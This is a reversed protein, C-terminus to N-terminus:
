AVQLHLQRSCGSHGVFDLQSNNGVMGGGRQQWFTLAAVSLIGGNSMKQLMQFGLYLRHFLRKHGLLLQVFDGDPVGGGEVEVVLGAYPGVGAPDVGGKGPVAAELLIKGDLGGGGGPQQVDEPLLAAARVAGAEGLQHHRFPAAEPAALDHEGGVVGQRLLVPQGVPQSRDDVQIVEGVHVEEALGDAAHRLGHEAAVVGAAHEGQPRALVAHLHHVAGALGLVAHGPGLDGLGEPLQPVHARFGEADM